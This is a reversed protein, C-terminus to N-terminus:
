REGIGTPGASTQFSTPVRLTALRAEQEVVVRGADLWDEIAPPYLVVEWRTISPPRWFGGPEYTALWTMLM